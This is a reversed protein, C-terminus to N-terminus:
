LTESVKYNIYKRVTEFIYIYIYIIYKSIIDDVGIFIYISINYKSKLYDTKNESYCYYTLIENVSIINHETWYM